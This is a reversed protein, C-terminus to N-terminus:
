RNNISVVRIDAYPYGFDVVVGSQTKQTIEGTRVYTIASTNSVEAEPNDSVGMALVDGISIDSINVKNLMLQDTSWTQTMSDASPISIRKQENLKMGVIGTSIANYEPSFIAFQRTWGSDTTYIQVPYLARTLSQNATISVQKSFLLGKSTSASNIYLQQDTTLIPTGGANFLTYDIVVTDGPKVVTFISLWGSGMGSVIMLVVFLVCAGVILVKKWLKTSADKKKKEGM